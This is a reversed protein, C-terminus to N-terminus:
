LIKKNKSLYKDMEFFSQRFRSNILFREEAKKLNYNISRASHLNFDKCIREREEWSYKKILLLFIYKYDRLSLARFLEEEKINNRECLLKLIVEYCMNNM